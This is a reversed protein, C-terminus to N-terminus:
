PGPSCRRRRPSRCSAPAAFLATLGAASVLLGAPLRVTRLKFLEVRVLRTM